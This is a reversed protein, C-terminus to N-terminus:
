FSTIEIVTWFDSLGSQMIGNDSGKLISKNILHQLGCSLSVQRSFSSMRASGADHLLIFSASVGAHHNTEGRPQRVESGAFIVRLAIGSGHPDSQSTM